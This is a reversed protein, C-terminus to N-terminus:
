TKKREKLLPKLKKYIISSKQSDRFEKDFGNVISRITKYKNIIELIKDSYEEESLYTLLEEKTTNKMDTKQSKTKATKPKSDTAAEVSVPKFLNLPVVPNVPESLRAPAEAKVSKKSKKLATSKSPEVPESNKVPETSKKVDIINESGTVKESDETQVAGAIKEFDTSKEAAAAPLGKKEQNISSFNPILRINVGRRKWFDVLHNYGMDKSVIYYSCNEKKDENKAIIYGVYSSLQFDLANKTGTLVRYVKLNVRHICIKELVEFPFSKCYESYMLLLTDNSGLNEVGAFGVSHVNEYDIFYYNM